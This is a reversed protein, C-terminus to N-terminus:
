NKSMKAASEQTAQPRENYNVYVGRERSAYSGHSTESLEGDINKLQM